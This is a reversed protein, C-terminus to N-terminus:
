ASPWFGILNASLGSLSLGFAVVNEALGDDTAIVFYVDSFATWLPQTSNPLRLIRRRYERPVEWPRSRRYVARVAALLQSPFIFFRLATFDIWPGIPNQSKSAQGAVRHCRHRYLASKWTDGSTMRRIKISMLPIEPRFVLRGATGEHYWAFPTM